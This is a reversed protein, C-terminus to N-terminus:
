MKGSDCVKLFYINEFLEEPKTNVSRIRSMNYSRVEKTHNDM